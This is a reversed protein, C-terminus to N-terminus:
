LDTMHTWTQHTATGTRSDRPETDVSRIQETRREEEPVTIDSLPALISGYMRSIHYKTQEKSAQDTVSSLSKDKTTKTTKEKAVRGDLLLEIPNLM